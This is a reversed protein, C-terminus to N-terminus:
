ATVKDMFVPSGNIKIVGNTHIPGWVSDGTIWYIGQEDDTFWFYKSIPTNNTFIARISDQLKYRTQLQQDYLYSWSRVRVEISDLGLPSIETYCSCKNLIVWFSFAEVIWSKAYLFLYCM